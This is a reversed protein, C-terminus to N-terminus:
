AFEILGGIIMVGGPIGLAIFWWVRKLSQKNLATQTILGGSDSNGELIKFLKKFKEAQTNKIDKVGQAMLAIDTEYKCPESMRLGKRRDPKEIITTM